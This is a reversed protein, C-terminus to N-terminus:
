FRYGYRFGFTEMGPNSDALNANSIHDLMLSLAHHDGLLYGLQLSERFLVRLGLAKRGDKQYTTGGNHGSLGLSFGVFLRTGLNKEWSLGAYVQSTHGETNLTFGLHPRPSLIKRFLPAGPVCFLVEANIDPGKEHKSGLLGVDHSLYGIRIESLIKRENSNSQGLAKSPFANHCAIILIFCAAVIHLQHRNM